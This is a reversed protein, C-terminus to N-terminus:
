KQGDHRDRILDPIVSGAGLLTIDQFLVPNRILDPIVFAMGSLPSFAVSM